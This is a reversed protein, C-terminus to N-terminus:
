EKTLFDIMSGKRLNFLQKKTKIKLKDSVISHDFFTEYKTMPKISALVCELIFSLPDKRRYNQELLTFFQRNDLRGADYWLMRIINLLVLNAVYTNEAIPTYKIFSRGKLTVISCPTIKNILQVVRDTNRPLRDPQIYKDIYVDKGVPFKRFGAWCANSYPAQFQGDEKLYYYYCKYSGAM